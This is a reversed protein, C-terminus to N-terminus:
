AAPSHVAERKSDPGPPLRWRRDHQWSIKGAAWDDVAVLPSRRVGQRRCKTAGATGSSPTLQRSINRGDLHSTGKLQAVATAPGLQERGATAARASALPPIHAAGAGQEAKPRRASRGWTGAPAQRDRPRSAPRRQSTSRSLWDLGALSLSDGLLIDATPSCGAGPLLTLAPSWYLTMCVRQAFSLSVTLCAATLRLHPCCYWGSSGQVPVSLTHRTASDGGASTPKM